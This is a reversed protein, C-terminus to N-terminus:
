PKAALPEPLSLLDPAVYQEHALRSELLTPSYYRYLIPEERSLLDEHAALFESSDSCVPDDARRDSIIRMFGVTMTEHYKDPPTGFAANLRQIGLRIRELAQEFRDARNLAIWAARVHVEHTWDTRNLRCSEFAAFFADDTM